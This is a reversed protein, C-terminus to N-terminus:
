RTPALHALWYEYHYHLRGDTIAYKPQHPRGEHHLLDSPLVWPSVRTRRAIAMQEAFAVRTRMSIPLSLDASPYFGDELRAALTRIFADRPSPEHAHTAVDGPAGKCMVYFATARDCNRQATIWELEATGNRWDWSLAIEHWDDPHMQSILSIRSYGTIDLAAALCENWRKYHEVRAVETEAQTSLDAVVDTRAQLLQAAFSPENRWLSLQFEFAEAKEFCTVYASNVRRLDLDRLSRLHGGAIIADVLARYRRHQPPIPEDPYAGSYQEYLSCLVRAPAGEPAYTTFLHDHASHPPAPSGM